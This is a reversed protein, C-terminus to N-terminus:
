EVTVNWNEDAWDVPVSPAILIENAKITITYIYHKGPLWEEPGDTPPTVTNDLYLKLGEVTEEIIDGTTSEYTYTLNLLGPVQPIVVVNKGQTKDRDYAANTEVDKGNADLVISTTGTVDYDATTASDKENNDWEISPALSASTSGDGTATCEVDATQDINTMTLNTVTYNDVTPGDGKVIFTIWACTHYMYVDVYKDTKGYGAARTLETSPFWMLDNAGEAAATGPSYNTISLTGNGTCDYTVTVGEVVDTTAPNDKTNVNGSASYGAFHLTKVNPWYYPTVGGWVDTGDVKNTRHTFQGDLIYNAEAYGNDTTEAFVYMDLTTPYVDGDVVSKTINGAVVSFGIEDTAEYAVESKTCAALAALAVISFFIKKM